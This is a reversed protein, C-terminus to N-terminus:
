VGESCCGVRVVVYGSRVVFLGVLARTTLICTGSKKGSKILLPVHEAHGPEECPSGLDLFPVGHGLFLESPVGTGNCWVATRGVLLGDFGDVARGADLDSRETGDSSDAFLGHEVDGLELTRLTLQLLHVGVRGFDDREDSVGGAHGDSPAHVPEAKLKTASGHEFCDAQERDADEDAAHPRPELHRELVRVAVLVGDLTASPICAVFDAFESSLALIGHTSGGVLLVPSSEKEM